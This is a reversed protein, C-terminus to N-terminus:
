IIMSKLFILIKIYISIIIQIIPIIRHMVAMTPETNGQNGHGWSHYIAINNAWNKISLINEQHNMIMHHISMIISM